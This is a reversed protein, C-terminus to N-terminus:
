PLADCDPRFDPDSGGIIVIGYKNEFPLTERIFLGHYHGEKDLVAHPLSFVKDAELRYRDRESRLRLAEDGSILLSKGACYDRQNEALDIISFSPDWDFIFPNRHKWTLDGKEGGGDVLLRLSDGVYPKGHEVLFSMASQMGDAIKIQNALQPDNLANGYGFSFSLPGAHIDYIDERRSDLQLQYADFEEWLHWHILTLFEIGAEEDLTGTTIDMRNGNWSQVKKPLIGWTWFQCKGNLYIYRVGNESYFYRNVGLAHLTETRMVLVINDSGDCVSYYDAVNPVREPIDTKKEADSCASLVILLLFLPLANIKNM